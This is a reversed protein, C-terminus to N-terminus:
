ALGTVRRWIWETTLCGLVCLWLWWRSWAPTLDRHPPGRTVTRNKLLDTLQEPSELVSGGSVAAVRHLLEHNPLPNQQEFPDSLIQVALSTSDVQTGHNFASASEEGEYATMEIRFGSDGTSGTESLMLKMQYGNDTADPTLPLEEGWAIRPGVEGSERVVNDPWLLPSYLSMDDLSTPEFMAWVRYKQTRRAGEDYAMASVSLSDGPRYFRKDSSAILRRRGTSSGETAWYVMNRWFKAAVREPQPGWGSNLTALDTGGFGVASVLVRGRGARHAMLLADGSQNDTALIEATPKAVYGAVSVKLPPLQQLLEANPREELRLRWVPHQPATVVANVTQVPSPRAATLTLPLLAELPSDAWAQSDLADSGTVILGGGRGEVWQSLWQVQEEQLVNPGVDAFVVCDYAFLEARTAPFGTTGSRNGDSNVLQPARGGLSLLVTCEVDEDAQLASRVDQPASGTSSSGGFLANLFSQTPVQQGQVYLVRVKTRNIDVRAEVRNNRDTLEGDIPDVTVVFDESQEDMRFTMSVSQAGGSLTVPMAPFADSEANTLHNRKKLRVMTRQGTYGFSRLFIQLENETYKRVRSPVVLSVVAIDGTGAAEGTPVVHLPVSAKGFIEALQEVTDSDRVRGDSLLVVGATAGANVQPLLQRLADALRSDSADPPLIPSNSDAAAVPLLSLPTGSSMESPAALNLPQLQHGFRFAQRNQTNDPGAAQEGERVFRLSEAWRSEQRGLQMSQSGDFVYLLSPRSTEGPQEDIMTPGMLIVAIIGLSCCRLLLLGLRGRVQSSGWFLRLCVWVVFCVALLAFMGQSSWAPLWSLYTNAFVVFMM